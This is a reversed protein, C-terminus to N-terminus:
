AVDRETPLLAKFVFAAAALGGLLAPKTCVQGQQPKQGSM